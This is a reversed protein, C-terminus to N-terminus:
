GAGEGIRATVQLNTFHAALASSAPDLAVQVRIVRADTNAAPSGDVVRQREVSLGVRDVTGTLVTDFAESTIRVPAGIRVRAIDSQYVELEAKMRSLDAIEFLGGPGPREGPRVNVTLITGAIPARLVGRELRQRATALDTQAAALREAAVRLDPQDDVGSATYRALTATLRTVEREARDRASQADDRAAASVTGRAALREIRGLETEATGLTVRASNLAAQAERLSLAINRRSQELEAERLAVGAEATAVAAALDDANDFRALIRGADVRDGEAVTVESIRADGAGFPMDIRTVDGAPKLIALAVIGTRVPAAVPVPPRGDGTSAPAVAIPTATGGGPQLGLASMVWRVPPPQFYLSATAVTLLLGWLGLGAAIRLAVRRMPHRRAPVPAPPKVVLLPLAPSAAGNAAGGPTVAVAPTRDATQAM